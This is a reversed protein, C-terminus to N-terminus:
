ILSGERKKLTMQYNNLVEEEDERSRWIEKLLM